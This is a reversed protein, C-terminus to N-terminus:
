KCLLQIKQSWFWLSSSIDCYIAVGEGKQPLPLNEKLTLQETLM